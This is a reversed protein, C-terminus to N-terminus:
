ESMAALVATRAAHYEEWQVRQATRCIGCIPTGSIIADDRSVSNVIIVNKGCFAKGETWYFHATKSRKSVVGISVGSTELTKGYLEMDPLGSPLLTVPPILFEAPGASAYRWEFVNTPDM